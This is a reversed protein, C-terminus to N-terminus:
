DREVRLVVEGTGVDATALARYSEDIVWVQGGGAPVCPITFRGEADTHTMNEMDLHSGTFLVVTCGKVPQGSTGVVRGSVPRGRELPLDLAVEPQLPGRLDLEQSASAYGKASMSVTYRGEQVAAVARGGGFNGGYSGHGSSLAYRGAPIPEGTQADLARLVLRCLPRLTFTLRVDQAPATIEQSEWLNGAAPSLLALRYPAQRPVTVDFSGDDAVPTDHGWAPEGPQPELPTARVSLRQRDATIRRGDQDVAIGTIHLGDTGAQLVLRAEQGAIVEVQGSAVAHYQARDGRVQATVETPGPKVSEVRFAGREDTMSPDPQYDADQSRVCVLADGLPDGRADLVTGVITGGAALRLVVQQGDPRFPPALDASRGFALGPASATAVLARDDPLRDVSFRGEDDTRATRGGVDRLVESWRWYRLAANGLLVSDAALVRVLAGPVPREREDLVVGSLVGFWDIEVTLHGVDERGVVVQLLESGEEGYRTLGQTWGSSYALSLAGAPYSTRSRFRGDDGSTALSSGKGTADSAALSVGTVPAESGREVVVGALFWRREVRLELQEEAGEALQLHMADCVYDLDGDAQASLVYEGPQLAEFRCRGDAASVREVPAAGGLRRLSLPVAPLPLESAADLVLVALDGLHDDVATRETTAPEAPPTLGAPRVPELRPAEPTVTAGPEEFQPGAATSSEEPERLVLVLLALVILALAGALLPRLSSMTEVM